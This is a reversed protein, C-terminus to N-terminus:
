VEGNMEPIIVNRIFDRFTYLSNKYEKAFKRKEKLSLKKFEKWQRCASYAYSFDTENGYAELEYPIFKYPMMADIFILPFNCLWQWLYNLYFMFWSNKTSEAQRVHITEHCKLVSDVTNTKNILAIDSEKNCYAVGFLTIARFCSPLLFAKKATVAIIKSPKKM